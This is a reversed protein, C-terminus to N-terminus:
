YKLKIIVERKVTVPISFQLYSISVYNNNQLDNLVFLVLFSTLDRLPSLSKLTM